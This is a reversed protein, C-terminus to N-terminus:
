EEKQHKTTTKKKRKKQLFSFFCDRFEISLDFIYEM